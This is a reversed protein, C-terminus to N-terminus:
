VETLETAIILTHSQFTFLFLESEHRSHIIRLIHVFKPFGNWIMCKYNSPNLEAVHVTTLIRLYKM